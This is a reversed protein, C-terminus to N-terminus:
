IAVKTEWTGKMGINNFFEMVIRRRGVDALTSLISAVTRAHIMRLEECKGGRM